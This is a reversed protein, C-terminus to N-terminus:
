LMLNHHIIIQCQVVLELLGVKLAAFFLQIVKIESFIELSEEKCHASHPRGNEISCGLVKAVHSVQPFFGSM